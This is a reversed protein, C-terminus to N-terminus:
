HQQNNLVYGIELHGFTVFVEFDFEQSHGSHIYELNFLAQSQLIVRVKLQFGRASVTSAM